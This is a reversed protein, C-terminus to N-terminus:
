TLLELVVMLVFNLTTEAASVLHALEWVPALFGLQLSRVRTSLRRGRM